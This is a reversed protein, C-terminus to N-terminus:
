EPFCLDLGRPLLVKNQAPAGQCKAPGVLQSPQGLINDATLYECCFCASADRAHNAPSLRRCCPSMRGVLLSGNTICPVTQLLEFKLREMCTDTDEAQKGLDAKTRWAEYAAVAASAPSAVDEETLQPALEGMGLYHRGAEQWALRVYSYYRVCDEAEAMARLITVKRTEERVVLRRLSTMVRSSAGADPVLGELAAVPEPSDISRALTAFAKRMVACHQARIADRSGQAADLQQAASEWPEGVAEAQSPSGECIAALPPSAPHDHPSAHGGQM